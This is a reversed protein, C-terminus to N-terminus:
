EDFLVEKREIYYEPKKGNKLEHWYNYTVWNLRGNFVKGFLERDYQSENHEIISHCNLCLSSYNDAIDLCYEQGNFRWQQKIHHHVSVRYNSGCCECYPTDELYTKRNKVSGITIRNKKYGM